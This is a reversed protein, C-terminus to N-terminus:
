QFLVGLCHTFGFTMRCVFCNDPCLILDVSILHNCHSSTEKPRLLCLREYPRRQWLMATLGKSVLILTKQLQLSHIGNWQSAKPSCFFRDATGCQEADWESSVGALCVCLCPANVAEPRPSYWGGPCRAAPPNHSRSQGFVRGCCGRLSPHTPLSCSHPRVSAAPTRGSRALVVLTGSRAATDPAKGASPQLGTAM